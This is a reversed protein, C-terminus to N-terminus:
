GLVKLMRESLQNKLEALEGIKWYKIKHSDLDFHVKSDETGRGPRRPDHDERATIVYPKGSAVAYGLEYYCNPREYTLDAVAIRCGQIKRLIADTITGEFEEKDVRYPVLGCDTIAPLISKSYVEDLDQKLSMIVFAEKSEGPSPKATEKLDQLGKTIVLNRGITAVASEAAL